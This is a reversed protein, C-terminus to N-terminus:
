HSQGHVHLQTITHLMLYCAQITREGRRREGERGVEGERKRKREGEM